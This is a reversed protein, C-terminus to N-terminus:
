HPDAPAHSTAAPAISFDTPRIGPFYQRGLAPIDNDRVNVAASRLISICADDLGPALHVEATQREILTPTSLQRLIDPHNHFYIGAGLQGVLVENLHRAALMRFLTDYSSTNYSRYGKAAYSDPLPMGNLMGVVGAPAGTSDSDARRYSTLDIYFVPISTGVIDHQQATRGSAILFDAGGAKYRGIARAYPMSEITHDLQAADVIKLSLARIFQAVSNSSEDKSVEGIDISAIRITKHCGPPNAAAPLSSVVLLSAIVARLGNVQEM